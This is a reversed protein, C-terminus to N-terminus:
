VTPVKPHNGASCQDFESSAFGMFKYSLLRGSWFCAYHSLETTLAGSEHNFPRTNSDRCSCRSFKRRWTSKRHQSKNRYGNWGRTVATVRLLGRGNQWFNLHCTVALCEYVKHISTAKCLIVHHMTTHHVCFKHRSPQLKM